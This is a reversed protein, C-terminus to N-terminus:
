PVAPQFGPGDLAGPRPPFCGPLVLPQALFQERAFLVARFEEHDHVELAVVEAPDARGAGDPDVGQALELAM